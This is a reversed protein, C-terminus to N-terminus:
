NILYESFLVEVVVGKMPDNIEANVRGMIDKKLEERGKAGELDILKKGSIAALIRDKILPNKEELEKLLREDSVRLHAVLRLHRTSGTGDINVVIPDVSHISMSVPGQTKPKDPTTKVTQKVVFFTILPTLLMVMFGLLIVVLMGTKPTAAAPQAQQAGGDEEINLSDDNEEPEKAM